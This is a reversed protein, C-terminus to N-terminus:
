KKRRKHLRNPVFQGKGPQYGANLNQWTLSQAETVATRTDIGCALLSAIHAALTCGSGHYSHPLREWTNQTIQNHSFFLTNIVRPTNEETGTILVYLCGLSILYQGCNNLTEQNESLRQAEKFNPTIITTLPILKSRMEEIIHSNALNLGGGSALVPDLVVPILPYEELFLCLTQLIEVSGILGIKICQINIDTVLTRLQQLIREAPQPFVQKVNETNQETLCTIVSCPHCGHSLFVEIDAQIGAGGCPDHGSITLVTPYPNSMTNNIVPIKQM